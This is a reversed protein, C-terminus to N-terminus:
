DRKPAHGLVQPREIWQWTSAARMALSGDSKKVTQRASFSGKQPAQQGRAPPAEDFSSQVLLTDGAHGEALYELDIRSIRFAGGLEIMAPTTWGERALLQEIGDELFSAWVGNNVHAVHDLQSSRVDFSTAQSTAPEPPVVAAPRALSPLSEAAGTFAEEMETPVRRPRGNVDCYVWDTTATIAPEREGQRRIEYRRLSRARRFDEIWTRLQIRDCGGVARHREVVTRRVIWLAEHESYWAPDFGLAASAEVAAREFLGLLSRVKLEGVLDVDGHSITQELQYLTGRVAM